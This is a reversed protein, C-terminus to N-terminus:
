NKRRKGKRRVPLGEVEAEYLGLRKSAETMGALGERQALRTKNKYALVAARPIRRHGGETHRIEGLKGEDVLANLHTRSVHLFNRRM